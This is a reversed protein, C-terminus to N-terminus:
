LFLFGGAPASCEVEKGPLSALALLPWLDEPLVAQLVYAWSHWVEGM